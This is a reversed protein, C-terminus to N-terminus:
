FLRSGIFVTERDSDLKELKIISDVDMSGDSDLWM